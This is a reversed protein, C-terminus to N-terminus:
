PVFRALWLHGVAGYHITGVVVVDGEPTVAVDNADAGIVSAAPVVYDWVVDGDATYRRLWISTVWEADSRIGVVVVDGDPLLALGEVADFSDGPLVVDSWVETGDTTFRAVWAGHDIYGGVFVDGAETVAIDAGSHYDYVGTELAHEWIVSGDPALKSVLRAHDSLGGTFYLNGAGDYAVGRVLNEALDQVGTPGYLWLPSGDAAHRTVHAPPEDIAFYPESGVVVFTGDEYAGIRWANSLDPQDLDWLLEGDATLRAIWGHQEIPGHAAYGGVLVDGGPAVDVGYAQDFGLPGHSFSRSWLREGDPSYAGLWAHWATDTVDGRGTVYIESDPGVAVRHGWAEDEGAPIWEDCWVPTPGPGMPMPLAHCMQEPPPELPVDYIFGADIRPGDTTVEGDGTTTGPEISTAGITGGDAPGTDAGADVGGTTSTASLGSTETDPGTTSPDGSPPALFDCGSAAVAVLGALTANRM